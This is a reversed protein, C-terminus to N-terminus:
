IYIGPLVVPVDEAMERAEIEAKEREFEEVVNDGSFAERVALLQDSAAGLRGREEGDGNRQAVMYSSTDILGGEGGADSKKAGTFHVFAYNM